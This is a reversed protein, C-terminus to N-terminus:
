KSEGGENQPYSLYTEGKEGREEFRDKQFLLFLSFCHLVGVGRPLRHPDTVTLM